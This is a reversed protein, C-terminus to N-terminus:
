QATWGGDVVMTQGTMYNSANSALFVAPGKLDEIQGFRRMPTNNIIHSHIRGHSVEMENMPTIVYGPCLANVQINYKAWELALAKTMQLMGGKSACYPLIKKIGVLGFISAVNIIKGSNQSIMQRGVAQTVFFVGKLDVNNM